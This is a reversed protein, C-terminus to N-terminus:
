KKSAQILKRKKRKRQSATGEPRTSKQPQTAPKKDAESPLPPEDDPVPVADEHESLKPTAPPDHKHAATMCTLHLHGDAICTDIRPRGQMRVDWIKIGGSSDASILLDDVFALSRVRKDHDFAAVSTTAERTDWIRVTKEEGGTALTHHDIFQECLVPYQHKLVSHSKGDVSFLTVQTGSTLSYDGGGPAWHVSSPPKPGKTKCSFAVKGKSLNWMCLARDKAISLAVRASQHVAMDVVPAHHARLQKMCTWDSCRWVCISADDSCSFLLNRHSDRVFQLANITGDHHLLTGVEVRKALDYIRITEDVGGSALLSSRLAACRVANVHPAYAFDLALTLATTDDTALSLGALSGDYGGVVLNTPSPSTPQGSHM